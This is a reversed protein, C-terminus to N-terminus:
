VPKPTWPSLLSVLQKVEDMIAAQKKEIERLKNILNELEVKSKNMHYIYVSKTNDDAAERNKQELKIIEQNAEAIQMISKSMETELSYLHEYKKEIRKQHDIFAETCKLRQNELVKEVVAGLSVDKDKLKDSKKM